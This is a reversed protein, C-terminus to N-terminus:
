LKSFRWANRNHCCPQNMYWLLFNELKKPGHSQKIPGFIIISFEGVEKAWIETKIPGFLMSNPVSAYMCTTHDPPDYLFIQPFNVFQGYNEYDNKSSTM